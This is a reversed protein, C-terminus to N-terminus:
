TPPPTSYIVNLYNYYVWFTVKPVFIFADCPVLFRSIQTLHIACNSLYTAQLERDFSLCLAVSCILPIRFVHLDLHCHTVPGTKLATKDVTLSQKRLFCQDITSIRMFHCQIYSFSEFGSFSYSRVTHM